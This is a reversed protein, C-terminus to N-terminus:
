RVCELKTLFWRRGDSHIRWDTEVLADNIQSVHSKVTTAQVPRRDRWLDALLEGSTIGIDGASRIRDLIQAKLFPLRIGFREEGYPRHCRPCIV